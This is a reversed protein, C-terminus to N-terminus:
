RVLFFHQELYRLRDRALGAFASEPYDQLVARYLDRAKAIDRAPSDAELMQAQLVEAEDVGDGQPYRRMYEAVLELGVGIERNEMQFRAAQLLVAGIDVDKVAELPRLYSFFADSDRQAIAIRTLGVVASDTYPGRPTLNRKYYIKATEPDGKALYISGIKDNAAADSEKYNKTAEALAADLKGMQILRDVYASDPTDSSGGANDAPPSKNVAALFDQDSVVHVTVSEKESAGTTNDQRLFDLAYDGKAFAKFTFSTKNGATSKSKFSMGGAQVKDPFGLFVFGTGDLVIELDDGVRAYVERVTAGPTAPAPAPPQTVAATAASTGASAGANATSASTSASPAPATQGAPSSAAPKPAPQSAPKPAPAKAPAASRAPTPAPVAPLAVSVTTRAPAHKPVGVTVDTPTDPSSGQAEPPQTVETPPVPDPPLAQPAGQDGGNDLGYIQTSETKEGPAVTACSAIWILSFGVLCVWPLRM